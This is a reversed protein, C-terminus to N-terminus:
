VEKYQSYRYFYALTRGWFYGSFVASISAELMLYKESHDPDTAQLYGFVYKILFFSILIFFTYYNGQMEISQTEKIITIPTKQGSSFGIWGGVIMFLIYSAILPLDGSTFIKFKLLFLVVPIIFLKRLSVTRPKMAKVGIFVLHLFLLWVWWPAGGMSQSFIGSM